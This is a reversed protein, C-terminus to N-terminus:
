DDPICIQFVVPDVAGSPPVLNLYLQWYGGMFFDIGTVSFVGDGQPTITPVVTAGHMHVPMYPDAPVDGPILPVTMGLGDAVPVGATGGADGSGADGPSAATVVVSFTDYGIAATSISPSGTATTVASEITALYAGSTSRASMGPSYRVAPTGSCVAFDADTDTPRTSLPGGSQSSGDGGCGFLAAAFPLLLALRLGIRRDRAPSFGIAV